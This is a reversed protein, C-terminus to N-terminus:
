LNKKTKKYKWIIQLNLHQASLENFNKLFYKKIVIKIWVEFFKQVVKFYKWIWSWDFYLLNKYLHQDM